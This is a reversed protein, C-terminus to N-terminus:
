GLGSVQAAAHPGRQEVLQLETTGQADIQADIGGAGVQVDTVEDWSRGLAELRALTERRQQRSLSGERTRREVASAIETLTWAWTVIRDDEALWSRVQETDPEAVILPVLASADWYRM